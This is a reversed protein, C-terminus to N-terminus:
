APQMQEQRRAEAPMLRGRFEELTFNFHNALFATARPCAKFPMSDLNFWEVASVRGPCLPTPDYRQGIWGTVACFATVTHPGDPGTDNQVHMVRVRQAVVGIDDRLFRHTAMEFSEGCEIPGGLPAWQRENVHDGAPRRILLIRPKEEIPGRLLLVSVLVLPRNLHALLEQTLNTVLNADDIRAATTLQKLKVRLRDQPSIDKQSRDSTWARILSAIEMKFSLGRTECLERAATLTDFYENEIETKM